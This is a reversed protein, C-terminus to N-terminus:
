FLSLTFLHRVTNLCTGIKLKAVSVDNLNLLKNRDADELDMIDFVSEINNALCKDIVESSLHPIQKLYSEKSWM